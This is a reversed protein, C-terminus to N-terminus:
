KMFDISLNRLTAAARESQIFRKMDSQAKQSKIKRQIKRLAKLIDTHKEDIAAQLGGVSIAMPRETFPTDLSVAITGAAPTILGRSVAYRNKRTEYIQELVIAADTKMAQRKLSANIRRTIRSVEADPLQALFVLGPSCRTLPRMMGSRVNLQLPNDPDQVLVYQAFIDNRMALIVTEEVQKCIEDMLEIILGTEKQARKMWDGLIAIRITPSYHRGNGSQELYGLHVLNKVLMSTSSQPIQLAASIDKISAAQQHAAFFEFLALVREASKISSM